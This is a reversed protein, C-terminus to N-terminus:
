GGSGGGCPSEGGRAGEGRLFVGAVFGVDVDAGDAMDIVAFGREGLGDGLDEGFLSPTLGHGVLIDITRGFLLRTLDGDVGRVNLVFRGISVVAM